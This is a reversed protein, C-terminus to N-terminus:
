EFGQGTLRDLLALSAALADDFRDPENSALECYYDVAEQVAALGEARREADALDIALNNVAMALDPLDSLSIAPTRLCTAGQDSSSLLHRPRLQLALSEVLEEGVSM